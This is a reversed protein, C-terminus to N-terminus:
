KICKNRTNNLDFKNKIDNLLKDINNTLNNIFYMGISTKYISTKIKLNVPINYMNFIRKITTNYTEDINTLYINNINTGNNILKSISEAVFIVEDELTNLKYVKHNYKNYDKNIIEINDLTNLISQQYKTIYDYGYIIIKKNKILNKFLNDKILYNDINDKITKLKNLKPINSNSDIYKINNLYILSINYNINEQKMLNYITEENYTYTLNNIFEELSFVKINLTKNNIRVNKIINEKINNPIVLISNDKIFDLM